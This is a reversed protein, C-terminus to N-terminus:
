NVGFGRGCNPCDVVYEPRHANIIKDANAEYYFETQEVGELYGNAVCVAIQDCNPYSCKSGDELKLIKM